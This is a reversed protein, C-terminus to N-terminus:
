KNSKVKRQRRRRDRRRQGRDVQDTYTDDEVEGDASQMQTILETLKSVTPQEYLSVASIHVQFTENIRNILKIGVLSNGGLEFFNDYVGVQEIDLTEQWIAVIQQEVKNRPAVYDWEQDRSVAPKEAQALNNLMYALTFKDGDAIVAPLYRPSVLIQQPLHHLIYRLTEQGEPPLIAQSGQQQRWQQIIAPAETEAAMGVDAWDGWNVSIVPYPREGEAEHAFADLFANAACYDIQGIGGSVATLSSFLLMFDLRKNAFVAALNRTGQVKPQLVAEAAERTKLQILGGGAVGAAHFVANIAGFKTEAQTVATALSEQDTVDAQILLLDAGAAELALLKHIRQSTKDETGKAVLWEEWESRHPFASRHLLVLRARAQKSLMEATALALGGLGGTILVTAQPRLRPVSATDRNLQTPAYELIWRGRGRYAITQATSDTQNTGFEALLLQVTESWLWSNPAPLQVDIVQTSLWDFEQPLVKAPGCLLRKEAMIPEADTIAYLHNAVLHLQTTEESRVKDLAQALYLLSYFANETQTIQDNVDQTVNWLHVIHEPWKGGAHLECCLTDYDAAKTPNITFVTEDLQAFQEGAMVVTVHQENTRLFGDLRDGLSAEDVFLLWNAKKDLLYQQTMTPPLTHQWTPLYFWDPLPAKKKTSLHRPQNEAPPDLWYRQREFPYGPLPLRRRNQHQYLQEWQVPCGALWLQGITTLPRIRDAENQRPHRLTAYTLQAANKDLQQKVVTALANGPGVELFIADGLTRLTQIGAAFNVTHRLHRAWYNPDTAQEATMWDGTENSILPASPPNLKVNQLHAIFPELAADMMPSHFAHSTHLRRGQIDQAELQVALAEIAEDPGSVVCSDPSNIVAVTLAEPLLNEVDAAPRSVALMSGPAMAQMLEGRKAVTHLADQLSFIGALTAAVYEGISHGIMADPGLSWSQWLKALAYEITFLAPQTVATKQLQEAAWEEKGAEPYILDRLDLHLFPRLAEACEAVTERFLPETQYLSQGMNVYQSGQGSFMFILPRTQEAQTRNIIRERDVARLTAAADAMDRCVVMRRYTFTRRGTHLTYAVDALNAEPHAELYDALNQTMTELAETSKASLQLLQWPEAPDSPTPKPAEELIIHANTGGIGFSSVGARRPTRGNQWPVLTNNIAFPTQALNLKPNPKDFHCTPPIQKHQLSLITKILGAVGAASDLHGVNSKVSGIVTKQEGNGKFLKALATIEIPDGLETATGHAEIYQITDPTVNAAAQAKAIVDAQGNISPATYGLKLSGDNNVATGKIVAQIHDDDALADALRKLVVVGVGSGFVTGQGAADFPRCHGDPSAIGSAQYVYGARQPVEITVGGALAIDCQGNMLSECALHTAVLSTSCGTQVDLSPGTLNLHYSARTALFDKDNGLMIAFSDDTPDVDPHNLLNFLLYTSMGMGAFVGIQGKYQESSYGANELAHWAVELFLRQEPALLKAQNPAYGFFSAAFHDIDALLPAARVFDPNNRLHQPVGLEDLTEDDLVQISEIGDRLNQWFQELNSAGPFRGDLGIIAIDDQQRVATQRVVIEEEDELLLQTVGHITPKELFQVLPIERGLEEQLQRQAQVLLLSHGGLDFFNDHIGVEPLGLVKQWVQAIRQELQSRPLVATKDAVHLTPAPLARRNVKGNPMLPFADLPVFLNPVMYDPLVAQLQTRIEAIDIQQGDQPVLYALLRKDDANVTHLTVLAERVSPLATLQNEIEGLEIRFGRLKIQHDVRGLFQINGDPLYRVLDGTKYLKGGKEGTPPVLPPFPDVIFKEETLEPRNWYGRAVGVGGIHLEGAVGQPVPQLHKDLIYLQINAIPRGIPVLQRPDDRLCQWYSVDIAAETPGYLNHLECNPLQDFFRQTLDYPLAEGSCIVRRLSTCRDVNPETLFIQLMSPVFHMTTIQAEQILQVLYTSDLHGGPKAMVLKAGTILPWFFEWVSVDFSFPTKQLIYDDATLRYADQMWLLRNVIGRHSNMAGKPKGTSGSTYITYALHDPTLPVDPNTQPHHAIQNWDTDVSLITFQSNSDAVLHHQTLLISVQSDELMFQLREAPYTPDIPVYAGGSKLIGMLAIVMELSRELCVGVMMDPQIGQDILYHALQNAKQNLQHYTLTQEAYTLAPADPTQTVQDEFMQHLCRTLDYPVATDNVTYLLTHKQEDTLLPLHSVATDPQAVISALLTNFHGAMQEISTSNFLDTNFEWTALWDGNIEAMALTLDFQSAQQTLALPTFRLAGLEIEDGAQGLALATLGPHVTHAKQWVFMNQFVPSHAVDRALGLTEVLAPFPYAQHAFAGVVTEKVQQLLNRFSMSGDELQTRVVVPNVFYGQMNQLERQERGATPTGTLVENQGSFRALLLQYAALFTMFPTCGMEWGIAMMQEGLEAPIQSRVTRGAYTQRTPRPKDTPMNLPPLEGHLQEKWYTRLKTGTESALQQNKWTVYDSYQHTIPSLEATKNQVLATYIQAFEEVLNVLSWFDTIIHHAVILLDFKKETLQYLRVRLLNQNLAFPKNAAAQLEAQHAAKPHQGNNSFLFDVTGGAAIQQIPQSDKLHFTTRLIPHRTVLRNMAQQALEPNIRGNLRLARAINYVPSEPALQCLYWIARQGHSLPFRQPPNEAAPVTQIQNDAALYAVLQESLQQITPSELLDAIPLEIQLADEVATKLEIAKLSDLGYSALPREPKIQEVPQRLLSAVQHQLYNAVAKAQETGTPLALIKEASIEPLPMTTSAAATQFEPVDEGIIKIDGALYLDRTKGRQIKGSSTKPIARPQVLIVGYLQLDHEEAIAQRLIPAAEAIDTRRHSRKVEHVLFLKEEGDVEITFAAGADPALAEHSAQATKEIDQPYHNRGRIILLEKLRGTVYLQGDQLFGLDGSRMYRTNDEPLTAHFTQNTADPNQWYGQAVSNGSIWIEGIEGDACPTHTHPNVIRIAQEDLLLTGSSVLLRGDSEDDTPQALNQELATTQFRGYVPESSRDSGTVILTAEALGYCPYFSSLKFGNPAFTEAFTTLTEHRIPEAGNYALTWRSLDLGAQQEPSINDLCLQYAFNPAGSITAQYKSIADLWRIPKQLFAFPSMLVTWGHCYIPQLIGGILGMDHYPPLWSVGQSRESLEFGKYILALNSLLNHHSLMVGKPEGTSGSTYQLFAVNQPSIDPTQWAEPDNSLTDVAIWHMTSLDPMHDIRSQRDQYTDNDTLVVKAQADDMIAQLRADHRNRRPPYSPVAIWGAYLCGFFAAIYDLGPPYLLLARDGVQGQEQLLLAIQRARQDLQAYTLPREDTEGDALFTYLLKDPSDNARCRLMDVLTAFSHPKSQAMFKDTVM